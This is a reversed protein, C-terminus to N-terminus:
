RGAEDDATAVPASVHTEDPESHATLAELVPLAAELARRQRSDLGELRQALWANRRQRSHELRREGEATIRVRAIRRDSSDIQRAVLGDDALRGVIRTITPPTVQEIRALRGLTLPGELAISVLVSQQSPSLGTGAQQRLLRALRATSLRLSAALERPDQPDDRPQNHSSSSSKAGM